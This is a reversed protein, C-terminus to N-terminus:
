KNNPRVTHFKELSLKLRTMQKLIDLRDEPTNEITLLLDREGMVPNNKVSTESEDVEAPRSVLFEKM